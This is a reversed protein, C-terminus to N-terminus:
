VTNQEAEKYLAYANKAKEFSQKIDEKTSHKLLFNRLKNRQEWIDLRDDSSYDFGIDVSEGTPTHTISVGDMGVNIESTEFDNPLFHDLYDKGKGETFTFIEEAEKSSLL